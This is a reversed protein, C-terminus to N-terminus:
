GTALIDNVKSAAKDLGTKADEKGNWIQNLENTIADRQDDGSGLFPPVFLQGKTLMTVGVAQSPNAKYFDGSLQDFATKRVPMYSSLQAWKATQATDTFYKIYLFAGHQVDQASKKFICVNAGFMEDKTGGPGAPFPAEAFKFKSGIPGRIFQYSVQTSIYMATKQNQFDVQDAFAATGVPKLYGAKLADVWLQTVKLGVASNFAAKKPSSDNEYLKGGYEYLMSIWTDLPPSEAGVVGPGALKQADAFFEEWTAPPTSIGKAAFMDQNYYLVTTSKNFPFMVSKGQVKTDNFMVPFIDKKDSDTLGDAANMYPTMDALAGSENYKAAHNELCQAMDPPSGAALATLLAKRLDSYAGKNVLTVHVNSQSTNYSETIQKLGGELAGSLAHWFTVEVKNSLAGLKPNQPTGAGGCAMVLLAGAM